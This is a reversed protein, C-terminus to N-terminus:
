DGHRREHITLFLSDLKEIERRNADGDIWKAYVKFFLNPDSHGMQQAVYLPIMGAHLCMTAFTHRTQRAPRYPVGAAALAPKWAKELATSTSLLRQGTAPNCFVYESTEFTYMKQRTLAALARTQLDVHRVRKSKTEKDRGRVRAGKVSVKKRRFDIHTWKLAILESPRLGSFIAFEFYNLWQADFQLLHNLVRDIQELELPDPSADEIARFDIKRAINDTVLKTDVAHAWVKRVPTLLNNFTKANEIRLGALHLALEEYTVTDIHRFGFAPLLFRRLTNRYESVTSAALKLGAIILYTEVAAEVTNAVPRGGCKKLFKSNPFHEVFTTLTFKGLRIARVITERIDIAAKWNAATPRLGLRERHRQGEWTFDVYLSAGHPYVGRSVNNDGM